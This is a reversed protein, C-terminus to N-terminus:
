LIIRFNRPCSLSHRTGFAGELDLDTKVKKPEVRSRNCSSEVILDDKFVIETCIRMARTIKPSYKHMWTGEVRDGKVICKGCKGKDFVIPILSSEWSQAGELRWLNVMPWELPRIEHIMVGFRAMPNGAASELKGSQGFVYRHGSVTLVEAGCARFPGLGAFLERREDEGSSAEFDNPALVGPNSSYGMYHIDKSVFLQAKANIDALLMDEAGTSGRFTIVCLYDALGKEDEIRYQAAASEADDFQSRVTQMTWCFFMLCVLIRM